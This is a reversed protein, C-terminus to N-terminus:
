VPPTWLLGERNLARVAESVLGIQRWILSLVFGVMVPLSLLRHRLGMAQYAAVQVYVAPHILETLRASVAEAPPAM